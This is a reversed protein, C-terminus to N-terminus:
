PVVQEMMNCIKYKSQCMMLMIINGYMDCKKHNIIHWENSNYQIKSNVIFNNFSRYYIKADLETTFIELMQVHEYCM